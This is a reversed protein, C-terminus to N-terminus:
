WIWSKIKRNKGTAFILHSRFVCATDCISFVNELDKGEIYINNKRGNTSIVLMKVLILRNQKRHKVNVIGRMNLWFKRHKLKHRSDRMRDSPVVSFLTEM